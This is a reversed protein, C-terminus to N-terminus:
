TFVQIRMAHLRPAADIFNHDDTLIAQAGARKASLVVICDTPTLVGAEVFGIFEALWQGPYLANADPVITLYRSFVSLKDKIVPFV